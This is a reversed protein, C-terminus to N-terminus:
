SIYYKNLYNIKNLLINLNIKGKYISSGLIIGILNKNQLVFLNKIDKLSSFGGSVIFPKNLYESIKKFKNINLGKLTGDRNIDTYIVSELPYNNIEKLFKFLNINYYNKWGEIALKLNKIDISLIIKEEYKKCVNQLFDLDTIAKTGLIIYSFGLDLYYEIIEMNRIGGGIQIKINENKYKIINKLSLLNKPKGHIAGDLDVIHIRNLNYNLWKNFVILPNKSFITSKNLDGKKLRVCNNNKLDIAPIILM